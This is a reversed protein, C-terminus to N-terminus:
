NVQIMHVAMVCASIVDSLVQAETKETDTNPKPGPSDSTFNPDSTSSILQNRHGLNGNVQEQSRNLSLRSDSPLHQNDISDLAERIRVYADEGGKRSSM